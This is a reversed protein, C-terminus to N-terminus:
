IRFHCSNNGFVPSHPHPLMSTRRKEQLSQHSHAAGVCIEGAKGVCRGKVRFTGLHSPDVTVELTWAILLKPGLKSSILFM